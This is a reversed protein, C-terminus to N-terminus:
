KGYIQYRAYTMFLFIAWRIGLGEKEKIDLDVDFTIDIYLTDPLVQKAKGAVYGVIQRQWKNDFDRFKMNELTAKADEIWDHVDVTFTVSKFNLDPTPSTNLSFVFDIGVTRGPRVGEWKDIPIRLLISPDYQPNDPCIMQGQFESSDGKYLSPYGAGFTTVGGSLPFVYNPYDIKDTAM